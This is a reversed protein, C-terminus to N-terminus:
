DVKAGSRKVVSEYRRNERRVLDGFQKPTTPAPEAALKLMRERVAPSRLAATFEKNLRDVIAPPTGAPAFIGFWTSIDFDKFGSVGSEAVTPLDPYASARRLTTVGIAKIRGERIRPAASGLNDFMVQVDGSLLATQAPAAGRYPIHVMYVGAAQKFLEAALHGGSGNGGSAFNVKGPNRKLYAILDGVNRIGNQAAFDANLVLVNPLDAVLTVPQFDKLPDFPMRPYLWPNIAHTSLAGMGITHGDPAAKAVVDMGINGGAGSRNEVVVNGLSPRVAEGLIRAVADLPGGPPFPVVFTIPKGSAPFDSSQAAAWPAHAALALAAISLIRRRPNPLANRKSTM